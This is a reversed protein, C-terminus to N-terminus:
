RFVNTPFQVLLTGIVLKMAIVDLALVIVFM